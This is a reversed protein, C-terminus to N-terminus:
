MLIVFLPEDGQYPIRADWGPVEALISSWARLRLAAASLSSLQTVVIKMSRNWRPATAARKKKVQFAKKTAQKRQHIEPLRPM